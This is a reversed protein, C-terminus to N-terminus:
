VAHQLEKQPTQAVLPLTFYFRSGKGVQSEVGIHGGHAEIIKRALYLSLGTGVQRFKKAVSSARQFLTGMREPEIGAGTDTVVVRLQQEQADLSVTITAGEPSFLVANQLLSRLVRQIERPDLWTTLPMDPLQLLIQQRKQAVLPQIEGQVLTTILPNLDTWQLKLHVQQEEYKYIMLLNEIMRQMFRNSQLIENIVERQQTNLSGFHGALLLELVQAEARIPTNLDHMLMDAFAAQQQRVEQNDENQDKIRQGEFQLMLAQLPFAGSRLRQIDGIIIDCAPQHQLVEQFSDISQVQRYTPHYGAKEIENLIFPANEESDDIILM